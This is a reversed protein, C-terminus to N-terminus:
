KEIESTGVLISYPISANCSFEKEIVLREEEVGMDTLDSIMQAVFDEPGCIYYYSTADWLAELLMSNIRRSDSDDHASHALIHHCHDGLMEEIEDRLFVDHDFHNAFLLINRRLSNDQKLQRLIALFPTIGTGRAIFVGPGKYKISGFTEHIILEAGAKLAGLKETFSGIGPYTKFIFELYNDTNCCTFTFPRFEHELGPTNISVDTAQGPIFTYGAPKQIVLRKVNHTLHQADLVKVIHSEM